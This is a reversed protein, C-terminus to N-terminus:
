ILFVVVGILTATRRDQVRAPQRPKFRACPTPVEPRPGATVFEGHPCAPKTEDDWDECSDAAVFVANPVSGADSFLAPVDPRAVSAHDASRLAPMATSNTFFVLGLLAIVQLCLRL